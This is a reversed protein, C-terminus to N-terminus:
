VISKERPEFLATSLVPILYTRSGGVQSTGAIAQVVEQEERGRNVREGANIAIVEGYGLAVGGHEVVPASIKGGGRAHGEISIQRTM